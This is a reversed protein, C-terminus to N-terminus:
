PNSRSRKPRRAEARLLKMEAAVGENGRSNYAEDLRDLVKRSREDKRIEEVWGPDDGDHPLLVFGLLDEDEDTVDVIDVDPKATTDTLMEGLAPESLRAQRKDLKRM